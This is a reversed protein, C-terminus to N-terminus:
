DILNVNCNYELDGVERDDELKDFEELYMLPICTIECENFADEVSYFYDEGSLLREIVREGLDIKNEKQEQDSGTKFWWYLFNEKTITYIKMIKIEGEIEGYIVKQNNLIGARIAEEKSSIMQSVDFVVNNGDIWAGFYNGDVSLLDLNAQIYDDTSEDTFNELPIIVERNPLSVAYGKVAVEQDTQVNYTVGGNKLIKNKM